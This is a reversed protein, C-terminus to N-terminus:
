YGYDVNCYKSNNTSFIGFFLVHNYFCSIDYSSYIDNKLKGEILYMVEDHEHNIVANYPGQRLNSGMEGKEDAFLNTSRGKRGNLLLRIIKFQM